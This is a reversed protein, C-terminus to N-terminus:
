GGFLAKVPVRSREGIRLGVMIFVFARFLFVWGGFSWRLIWGVRAEVRLPGGVRGWGGCRGGKVGRVRWSYQLAIEWREVGKTGRIETVM